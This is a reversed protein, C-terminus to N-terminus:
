RRYLGVQIMYRGCRGAWSYVCRMPVGRYGQVASWLAISHLGSWKEPDLLLHFRGLFLTDGSIGAFSLIPWDALLYKQGLNFRNM